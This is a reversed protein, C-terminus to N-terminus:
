EPTFWNYDSKPEVSTDSAVAIPINPTVLLSVWGAATNVRLFGCDGGSVIDAIEREVHDARLQTSEYVEGGYHIKVRM